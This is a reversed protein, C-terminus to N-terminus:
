PAARLDGAEPTVVLHDVPGSLRLGVPTRAASPMGESSWRRKVQRLDAQFTVSLNRDFGYSGSLILKAGSLELEQGDSSVKRNRWRLRLSAARVSTETRSPEFGEGFRARALADLPDFDGFFVHQLQVATQGQLNDAWERWSTGATAFSGSASVFGRVQGLAPPLIRTFSQLKVSRLDLDGTM